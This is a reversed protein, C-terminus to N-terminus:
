RKFGKGYYEPHDEMAKQGEEREKAGAAGGNAAEEEDEDEYDSEDGGDGAGAPRSGSAGEQGGSLQKQWDVLKQRESDLEAKKAAEIRNRRTREMEIQRETAERCRFSYAWHETCATPFM